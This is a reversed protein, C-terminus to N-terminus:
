SMGWIINIINIDPQHNPVNRIKGIKEMYRCYYGWSVKMNKLPTSGGSTWPHSDSSEKEQCPHYPHLFLPFCGLMMSTDGVGFPFVHYSPTNEVSFKSHILMRIKEDVRNRKNLKVQLWFLHDPFPNKWLFKQSIRIWFSSIYMITSRFTWTSM